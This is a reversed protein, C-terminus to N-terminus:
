LNSFIREMPISHTRAYHEAELRDQAIVCNCREIPFVPVFDRGAIGIYSRELTRQATTIMNAISKTTIEDGTEYWECFRINESIEHQKLYQFQRRQSFIPNDLYGTPYVFPHKYPLNKITFPGCISIIQGNNKSEMAMSLKAQKFAYFRGEREIIYHPISFSVIHCDENLRKYGIRGHSNEQIFANLVAKELQIIEQVGLVSTEYFDRLMAEPADRQNHYRGAVALKIFSEVTNSSEAGQSFDTEAM